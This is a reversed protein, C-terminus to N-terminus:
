LTALEALLRDLEEHALFWGQGSARGASAAYAAPTAM